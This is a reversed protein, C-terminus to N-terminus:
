SDEYLVKSELGIVALDWMLEVIAEWRGQLRAEFVISGAEREIGDIGGM